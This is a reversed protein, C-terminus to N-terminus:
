GSSGARTARSSSCRRTGGVNVRRATERDVGMFYIGALHHIWTLERSLARYEVSSLGLDM